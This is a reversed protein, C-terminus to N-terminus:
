MGFLGLVYNLVMYVPHLPSVNALHCMVLYVALVVFWFAVNLGSEFGTKQM